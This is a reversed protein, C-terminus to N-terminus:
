KLVTESGLIRNIRLEKTSTYTPLQSNKGGLLYDNQCSAIVIPLDNMFPPRSKLSWYVYISTQLSLVPEMLHRSSPSEDPCCLANMWVQSYWDPARLSGVTKMLLIQYCVTWLVLCGM